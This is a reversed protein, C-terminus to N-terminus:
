VGIECTPIKDIVPAKQSNLSRLITNIEEPWSSSLIAITSPQLYRNKHIKAISPHNRYKGLISSIVGNKNCSGFNFKVKEPKFGCSGEVINIFHDNFFHQVLNNKDTIMKEDHRLM